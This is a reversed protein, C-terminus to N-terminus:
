RKLRGDIVYLKYLYDLGELDFGKKTPRAHIAPLMTEKFGLTNPGSIECAEYLEPNVEVLCMYTTPKTCEAKPILKFLGPKDCKQVLYGTVTTCTFENVAEGEIALDRKQITKLNAGLLIM